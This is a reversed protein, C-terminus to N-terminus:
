GFVDLSIVEYVSRIVVSKDLPRSQAVLIVEILYTPRSHLLNDAVVPTRDVGGRKSARM